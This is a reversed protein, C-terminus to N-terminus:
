DGVKWNIYTPATSSTTTQFFTVDDSTVNQYTNATNWGGAAISTPFKTDIKMLRVNGILGRLIDSVSKGSNKAWTELFEFESDSVRTSVIKDLSM